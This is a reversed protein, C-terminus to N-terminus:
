CNGLWFNSNGNANWNNNPDNPNYVDSYYLDTIWYHYGEYVELTGIRAPIIDTDGGLLVYV